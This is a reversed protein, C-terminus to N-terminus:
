LSVTAAAREHAMRLGTLTLDEDWIDIADTEGILLRAFGGTAIVHTDDGVEAKIRRTGAELLGIQSYFLGSRIAEDTTQAILGNPKEVSVDPLRPAAQHLARAATGWGPAILGGALVRDRTVVDITTATGFSCVIVPSGYKEVAAFSNVLRGTGATELPEYRVDLGLNATNEIFRLSTHFREEVFAAIGENVRTVVSCAIAQDISNQQGSFAEHLSAPDSATAVSFKLLLTTGDFIGCKIRSNGIDIALLM